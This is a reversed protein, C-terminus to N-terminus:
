RTRRRICARRVGGDGDGAAREVPEVAVFQLAHDRVFEAMDQVAVHPEILRRIPRGAEADDHQREDAAQEQAARAVALVHRAAAAPHAAASM